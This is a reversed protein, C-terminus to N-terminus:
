LVVIIIPSQPRSFAPVLKMPIGIAGTAFFHSMREDLHGFPLSIRAGPSRYTRLHGVLPSRQKQRNKLQYQVRPSKKFKKMGRWAM